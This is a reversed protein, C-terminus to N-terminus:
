EGTKEYLVYDIFKRNIEDIWKFEKEIYRDTSKLNDVSHNLCEAIIYKSYGLNNRVISGQTYGMKVVFQNNNSGIKKLFISLRKKVISENAM